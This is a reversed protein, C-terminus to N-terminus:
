HTTSVDSVSERIFHKKETWDADVCLEWVTKGLDTSRVEVFGLGRYHDRVLDNKKTPIYEGVLRSLGHDIAASVLDNLVLAEVGRKLV